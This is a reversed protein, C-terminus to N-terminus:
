KQGNQTVTADPITVDQFSTPKSILVLLPISRTYIKFNLRYMIFM